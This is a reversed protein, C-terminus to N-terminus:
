IGQAWDDDDGWAAGEMGGDAASLDILEASSDASTPIKSMSGNICQQLYLPAQHSHKIEPVMGFESFVDHKQQVSESPSGPGESIVSEDLQETHRPQDQLTSAITAPKLQVGDSLARISRPPSGPLGYESNESREKPEEGDWEDWENKDDDEGAANDIRTYQGKSKEEEVNPGKSTTVTESQSWGFKRKRGCLILFVACLGFAAVFLLPNVKEIRGSATDLSLTNNGRPSKFSGSRINTTTENDEHFSLDAPTQKGSPAVSEQDSPLALPLDISAVGKESTASEDPDM